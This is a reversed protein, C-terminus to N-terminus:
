MQPLVFGALEMVRQRRRRDSIDLLLHSPLSKRQNHSRSGASRSDLRSSGIRAAQGSGVIGGLRAAMARNMLRGGFKLLKRLGVAIM